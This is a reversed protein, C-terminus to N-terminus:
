PATERWTDIGLGVTAEAEDRAVDIAATTDRSLSITRASYRAAAEVSAYGSNVRGAFVLIVAILIFFGIVVPLEVAASGRDDRTSRGTM